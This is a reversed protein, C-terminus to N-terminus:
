GLCAPLCMENKVYVIRVTILHHKYTDFIENTKFTVTEKQERERKGIRGLAPSGNPHSRASSFVTVLVGCMNREQLPM